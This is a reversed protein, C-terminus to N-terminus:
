RNMQLRLTQTTFLRWRPATKPSHKSSQEGSEEAAAKPEHHGVDGRRVIALIIGAAIVFLVWSWPAFLFAALFTGLWAALWPNERVWTFVREHM